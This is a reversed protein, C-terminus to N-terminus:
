VSESRVVAKLFHESHPVVAFHFPKVFFFEWRYFPSLGAVQQKVLKQRRVRKRVRQPTSKAINANLTLNSFRKTAFKPVANCLLM